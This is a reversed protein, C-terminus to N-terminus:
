KSFVGDLFLSALQAIRKPSAKEQEVALSIATIIYVIDTITVDARVVGAQQARELLVTGVERIADCAPTSSQLVAGISAALGQYINIHGVVGEVYARLAGRADLEGMGERCTQAFALLRDSYTAALLDDRTAFRRYLTGIGVGARKAIAELSATNGQEMFVEEAAAVIRERNQQADARLTTKKEMWDMRPKQKGLPPYRWTM